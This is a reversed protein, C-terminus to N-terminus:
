EDAKCNDRFVLKAGDIYGSIEFFLSIKEVNQLKKFIKNSLHM